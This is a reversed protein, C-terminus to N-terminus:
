VGPLWITKYIKMEPLGVELEEVDFIIAKDLSDRLSM